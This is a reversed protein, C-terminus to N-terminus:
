TRPVTALWLRWDAPQDNNLTDRVVFYNPGLCDQDKVFLIQRQWGALESRVYDVQAGNAFDKIEAAANDAANDQKGRDVRNHDAAPARSYYGFDECLPKGKGWLIFSGEDYDYHDHLKGAILYLYTECASPYHSRMVVGCEPFWESQWRPPQAPISRDFMLWSYGLTSPYAGGIGPQRFLGQEKWAWQMQKAFEPDKEKWLRALWGALCTREGLYTNGIEPM